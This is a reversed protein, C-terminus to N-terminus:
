TSPDELLSFRVLPDPDNEIRERLEQDEETARKRFRINRAALYRIYPNDSHLAKVHLRRLLHPPTQLGEFKLLIMIQTEVSLGDWAALLKAVGSPTPQAMEAVLVSVGSPTKNEM